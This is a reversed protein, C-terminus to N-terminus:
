CVTKVATSLFSINIICTATLVITKLFEWLFPFFNVMRHVGSPEQLLTTIILRYAYHVILYYTSIFHILHIFNKDPHWKWM